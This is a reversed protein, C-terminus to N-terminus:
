EILMWLPITKLSPRHGYAALLATILVALAKAIASHASLYQGSLRRRWDDPLFRTGWDTPWREQTQSTIRWLLGCVKQFILAGSM